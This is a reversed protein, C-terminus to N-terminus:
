VGDIADARQWHVRLVLRLDPRWGSGRRTRRNCNELKYPVMDHGQLKTTRVVRSDGARCVRGDYASGVSM